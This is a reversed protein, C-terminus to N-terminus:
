RIIGLAAGREYELLKHLRVFGVSVSPISTSSAKVSAFWCRNQYELLGNALIRYVEINEGETVKLIVGSLTSLFVNRLMWHRFKLFSPRWHALLTSDWHRCHHDAYNAILELAFAPHIELDKAPKIISEHVELRFADKTTYLENNQNKRHLHQVLRALHLLKGRERDSLMSPNSAPGSLMNSASLFPAFPDGLATSLRITSVGFFFAIIEILFRRLQRRQLVKSTSPSTQLM